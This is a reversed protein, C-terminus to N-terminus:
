VRPDPNLYVAEVKEATREWTFEVARRAAAAGLKTRLATDSLVRDLASALASADDPPVLLAEKGHRVAEPIGGVRTAVIPRGAHLAELIVRPFNESRSALVVIQASAHLAAIKRPDLYGRFRVRDDVGLQETLRKLADEEWGTGVVDLRPRATMQALARLLTDIGKHHDLRAVCLLEPADDVHSPTADPGFGRGGNHAVTMAADPNLYGRDVLVRKSHESVLIACDARRLARRELLAMVHRRVWRAKQLPQTLPPPSSLDPPDPHRSTAFVQTRSGAAAALFAGEYGQSHVVDVSRFRQAVNRAMHVPNLYLRERHPLFVAVYPLDGPVDSPLGTFIVTVEHGRASLAGALDHTSLQGGGHRNDWPSLVSTQVIRLSPATM